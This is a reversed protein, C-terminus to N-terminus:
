YILALLALFAGFWLFQNLLDNQHPAYPAIYFVEGGQLRFFLILGLLMVGFLYPLSAWFSSKKAKARATASRYWFYLLLGILAVIVIDVIGFEGGARVQPEIFTGGSWRFLALGGLSLILLIPVFGRILLVVWHRRTRQLISEGEFTTEFERGLL